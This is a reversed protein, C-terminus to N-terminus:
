DERIENKKIHSKMKYKTEQKREDWQKVGNEFETGEDSLPIQAAPTTMHFQAREM